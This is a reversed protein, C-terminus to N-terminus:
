RKKAGNKAKDLLYKTKLSKMHIYVIKALKCKLLFLYFYGFYGMEIM